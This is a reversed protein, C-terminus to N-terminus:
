HLQSRTYLRECRPVEISYFVLTLQPNKDLVVDALALIRCVTM